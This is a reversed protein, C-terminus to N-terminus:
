AKDIRSAQKKGFRYVFYMFIIWLPVAVVSYFMGFEPTAMVCLVFVVFTLCLYNGFPYWITPFITKVGEKDKSNRFFLHSLSIMAWNIVLAAVVISMAQKFAETWDPSFYNLPVVSFTLVAALAMAVVPVGRTNLKSFIKPANGQKSLGFLMRSTAYVGSNFVSLAATLIVFNLVGAVYKFGLATFILTFPSSNQTLKSWHYLSLLVAITGIYFILIRVLVQKTAKPINKQPNDTEAAAIGVLELGGFSFMIIPIAMILGFYGNIFFCDLGQMDGSPSSFLNKITAGPVLSTNILLIYLGFLIMAIIATIKIISFWFEIEGFAKVTSFNIVNIIIFFGLASVWTPLEPFWFQMYAAVATLESISVMVYLIWYNWGALFGAFDGWYKCAFYSFSGARPEETMMEGLQRMVLFALFGVIAYGVLVSPGALFIAAGTGLFLGTGVAGGLAILQIHRNKLARHLGFNDSM